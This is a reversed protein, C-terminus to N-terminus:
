LVEQAKMGLYVAMVGIILSAAIYLMALGLKDAEILALIEGSFTSFTSFGGCFGVGLLYYKELNIDGSVRLGLIMGLIFCAIFNAIFTAYPFASDINEFYRNVGFRAISGLGGGLFVMAWTSIM